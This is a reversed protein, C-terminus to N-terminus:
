ENRLPHARAEGPALCLELGSSWKRCDWGNRHAQNLLEKQVTKASGWGADDPNLLLVTWHSAKLPADFSKKPFAIWQRQSLQPALYSTSLVRAEPPVLRIAETVDQRMGLRELYPGTFFWPKALALWCLVAWGAVLFRHRYSLSRGQREGAALGEIAAVVAIVALPLSYHHVLTRYSSSASLLNVVVLPLGILLVPFSNRRWLVGCPLALLLLYSAGGLWDLSNLVQVPSGSLHGFMQGAAKPGEGDRLWPYLWRSLMLLWGGSLVTAATSWRWRRLWAQEIALGAIVQLLGDRFGLLTLLLTMWLWPRDAREAWLALALVPMGWVEPHFDFLNSNFVVPQLWWLLCALWCLRTPLRAQAALMWIPIATCSLALAQSALLWQLTPQITYLAGGLYLWWAGHDALLHVGEMSSMPPLGQSVLWAWQDFLGLDYANSQLLWHRAASCSWGLLGILLSILWLQKPPKLSQSSGKM